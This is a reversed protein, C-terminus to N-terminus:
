ARDIIALPGPARPHYIAGGTQEILLCRAGRTGPDAARGRAVPKGGVIPVPIEGSKM